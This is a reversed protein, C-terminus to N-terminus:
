QEPKKELNPSVNREFITTPVAFQQEGELARREERREIASKRSPTHKDSLWDELNYGAFLPLSPTQPSFCRSYTTTTSLKVGDRNRVRKNKKVYRCIRRGSGPRIEHIQKCVNTWISFNLAM